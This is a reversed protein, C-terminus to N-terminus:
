GLTPNRCHLEVFFTVAVTTAKKKRSHLQLTTGCLLRRCNGDSEEEQQPATNCHLAVFCVIAVVNGDGEEEEELTANCRLKVFFAVAAVTV